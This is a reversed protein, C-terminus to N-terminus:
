TAPALGSSLSKGGGEVEWTNPDFFWTSIEGLDEQRESKTKKSPYHAFNALTDSFPEASSSSSSSIPFNVSGFTWSLIHPRLLSYQSGSALCKEIIKLEPCLEQQKRVETWPWNPFTQSHAAHQCCRTTHMHELSLTSPTLPMPAERHLSM